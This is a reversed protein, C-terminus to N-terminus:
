IRGSKRLGVVTMARRRGAWPWSIHVRILRRSPERRRKWYHFTFPLRGPTARSTSTRGTTSPARTVRCWRSCTTVGNTAAGPFGNTESWSPFKAPDCLSAYIVSHNTMQQVALDTNTWNWANSVSEIDSWRFFAAPSLTRQWTIGWLYNSDLIPENAPGHVGFMSNTSPATFPVVSFVLESRFSTSQDLWAYMRTIGNNSTALNIPQSTLTNASASLNTSGSAVVQNLWDYAIWHCTVPESVGDNYLQINIIRSENTNFVNGNRGTSLNVEAQDAPAYGTLPGEQLEVADVGVSGSSEVETWQAQFLDNTFPTLWLNTSFRQWSSTLPVTMRGSNTGYIMSWSCSLTGPPGTQQRAYFSLTYNRTTDSRIHIVPSAIGYRSGGPGASNIVASLSGDVADNTTMNSMWPETGPSGNRGASTWGAAELGFEFSSNPILNGSSQSASTPPMASGSVWRADSGGQALAFNTPLMGIGAFWINQLTGVPLLKTVTLVVDTCTATPTIVGLNYWSAGAFEQSAISGGAATASAEVNTNQTAFAVWLDPLPGAPLNTLLPVDISAQVGAAITSNWNTNVQMQPFYSVSYELWGQVYTHSGSQYSPM